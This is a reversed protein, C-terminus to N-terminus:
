YTQNSYLVKTTCERQTEAKDVKTEKLTLPALKNQSHVTNNTPNKATKSASRQTEKTFQKNEKNSHLLRVATLLSAKEDEAAKVNDNLNDLM